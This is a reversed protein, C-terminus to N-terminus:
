DLTATALVKPPYPPYEATRDVRHLVTVTAADVLDVGTVDLSLTEYWCDGKSVGDEPALICPQLLVRIDDDDREAFACVENDDRFLVGTIELRLTTSSVAATLATPVAAPGDPIAACPQATSPCAGACDARVWGRIM